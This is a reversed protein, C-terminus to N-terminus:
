SHGGRDALTRMVQFAESLRGGWPKIWGPPSAPRIDLWATDTGASGRHQPKIEKIEKNKWRLMIEDKPITWCHADFPSIGLCIAVHYNQDRLQQFKYHGAKWLTSGKIEVRLGEIIRDADSDGTRTVNLGKAACWGAVLSEFIAGKQRSSCGRIWEFPSGRWLNSAHEHDGRISASISALLRLDPDDIAIKM